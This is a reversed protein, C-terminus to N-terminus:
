KPLISLTRRAGSEQDVPTKQGDAIGKKGSRVKGPPTEVVPFITKWDTKINAVTFGYKKAADLSFNDKERYSFEREADDHNILLQFSAGGRGKSYEMMAIDGGSLVNGGVFAPRQGIHRDIGVPKGDKDNLHELAPLRWVSLLNNERRSERKFETGVIHDAPIGYVEPAVARMFDITGGSSIWIQFENARLFNLLELMPQYVVATFPRNLKPHRGTEFFKRAESAFQEQTMGTHTAMLLEVVAKEGQEHFYAADADLAAKFPQKTKLSADKEAMERVRALVFYVENPLPKEAWLTGDNDFAAIRDSVPIFGADGEKAARAVFDIIARKPAGDNWSPLPDGQARVTAAAYFALMAVLLWHIVIRRGDLNEISKKERKSIM